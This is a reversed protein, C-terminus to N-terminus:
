RPEKTQHSAKDRLKRPTLDRKGQAFSERREESKATFVAYDLGRLKDSPHLEGFFIQKMSTLKQLM